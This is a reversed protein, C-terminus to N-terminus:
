EGRAGDPAVYIPNTLVWPWRQGALQVFAEMRYTGAPIDRATYESSHGEYFTESNRVLRFDVDLPLRCRLSLGTQWAVRDGVTGAPSGQREVWFGVVPLPAVIEFGLIVRGSRLAHRVSKETIEGIQLFTGVHRMSIEYPDIQIAALEAPASAPADKRSFAGRLLAAAAGQGSWIEEDTADLVRVSGDPM